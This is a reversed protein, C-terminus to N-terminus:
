TTLLVVVLPFFLSFFFKIIYIYYINYIYLLIEEDMMKTAHL